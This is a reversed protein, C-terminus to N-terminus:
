RTLKKLELDIVGFGTVQGRIRLPIRGSESLLLHIEDKLGLLSFPEVDGQVGKLPRSTLAVHLTELTRRIRTEQGASVQLYDVDLQERGLSQLGVRYVHKRDFMCLAVPQESLVQDPNSLLTLLQSSELIAPCERDPDPLPYFSESTQSWHEPPQGTEAKNAPNSRLRYVRNSGFRYLKRSPKSGQRMRILQLPLGDDANFWLRTQTEIKAGLLLQITNSVVLEQIRPAAVRQSIQKPGDVLISQVETVTPKRQDIRTTVSGLVGADQLELNHWNLPTPTLTNTRHSEAASATVAATAVAIAGLLM